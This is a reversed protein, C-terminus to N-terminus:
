LTTYIWEPPEETPPAGAAAWVVRVIVRSKADPVSVQIPATGLELVEGRTKPEGNVLLTEDSSSELRYRGPFPVSIERVENPAVARQAGAVSIPGWYPVYYMDILRQDEPLLYAFARTGSMLEDRNVLLLPPQYRAIAEAMFSQGRQRYRSVGWTSMFFNTKRFSAIMGSHDVYPVPEPFVQHVAAVVARQPIQDDDTFWSLNFLAQLALLTCAAVPLWEAGGALSRRKALNRLEDIAVAALVSAPALMVVYYYPFANRYFLLPLLSCACALAEWRRRFIALLLGIAMLLWTARDSHFSMRLYDWRPLFPVELFVKRVTNSAFTSSDEGAIAPLSLRHLLLLAGAVVLAAGGFTVCKIAFDRLARGPAAGAAMHALELALVVPLLLAAKLSIAVAIGFCVGAALVRKPSASRWMLLLVAMSLPALLSDARFSGGHKLVPLAALFCLPAIWAVSASTVRAALKAILVATIAFLALMPVRAAVIQSIENPSVWALWTFLHTYATQYFDVLEGRKLSHVMSLFYFEDWNVNLRGALVFKVVLIVACLGLAVRLGLREWLAPRAPIAAAAPMSAAMPSEM